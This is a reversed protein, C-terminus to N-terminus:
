SLSNIVSVHNILQESNQLRGLEYETEADEVITEMALPSGCPESASLRAGCKAASLVAASLVASEARGASVSVSDSRGGGM